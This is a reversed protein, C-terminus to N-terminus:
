EMKSPFVLLPTNQHSLAKRVMSHQFLRIFFSNQVHVMALMSGLEDKVLRNLRDVVEKGNVEHYKLGTYKITSLQAELAKKNKDCESSSCRVHIVELQCHLLHGLKALYHIAKMDADEFDTALIIKHLMKINTGSPVILIPRTSYEIVANTDAGFMFSDKDGSRAGMVVLEVNKTKILEVVDLGLDSDDSESTIVPQRDGPDLHYSLSELGETLAELGLKSKHKRETFEDVVWGGGGYATITQYNIYTNFLLM